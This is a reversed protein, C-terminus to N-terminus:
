IVTERPIIKEQRSSGSNSSQTRSPILSPKAGVLPNKEVAKPNM